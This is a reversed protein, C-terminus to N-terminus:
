FTVVKDSDKVLAYLQQMSGMECGLEERLFPMSDQRNECCVGCGIMKGGYDNFIDMQEAIDYKISALNTCEVGQGLLFVTVEDDYGLASNAFRWANWVTEPDNSYIVVTLRM